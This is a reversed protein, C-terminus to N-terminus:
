ACGSPKEQNKRETEQGEDQAVHRPCSLFVAGRSLAWFVTNTRILSGCVVGIAPGLFRSAFYANMSRSSRLGASLLQQKVKEDEALGFRGRLGKAMVPDDRADTRQQRRKKPGPSHEAGDRPDTQRCAFAELHSSRALLALVLFVTLTLRHLLDPEYRRFRSEM